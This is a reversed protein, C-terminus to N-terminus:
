GAPPNPPAVVIRRYPREFGRGYQEGSEGSTGLRAAHGAAPRGRDRHAAGDPARQRLGRAFLIHLGHTAISGQFFRDSGTPRATQRHALVEAARRRLDHAARRSSRLHVSRARTPAPATTSARTTATTRAGRAAVASRRGSDPRDAQRDPVPRRDHRAPRHRANWSLAANLESKALDAPRHVPPLAFQDTCLLPSRATRARPLGRRRRVTEHRRLELQVPRRLQRVGRRQRGDIRRRTPCAGLNFFKRVVGANFDWQAYIGDLPPIVHVRLWSKQRM